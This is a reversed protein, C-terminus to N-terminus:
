CIMASAANSAAVSHLHGDHRDTLTGGSRASHNVFGCLGPQGTVARLLCGHARGGCPVRGACGLRLPSYRRRCQATQVPAPLPIPRTSTTPCPASASSCRTSDTSHDARQLCRRLGPRRHLARGSLSYLCRRPDVRRGARPRCFGCSLRLPSYLQHHRRHPCDSM